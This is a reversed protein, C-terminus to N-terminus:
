VRLGCRPCFKANAPVRRQCHPCPQVGGLRAACRQCYIEGTPNPQQCNRCVMVAPAAPATNSLSISLQKMLRQLRDSIPLPASPPPAVPKAAANPQTAGSPPPITAAAQARAVVDLAECEPCRPLHKSYLHLGRKCTVLAKEATSLAAEWEEPTPRASPRTHGDVFCRRVLAVLDPHLTDLAPANRPPALPMGPKRTYPWQGDRIRDEVPPPDGAGLWQARFPHNGEMLLQFILVALGFRDHEPQRPVESFTRGQLEPPTYEAKGVPCPHLVPKAGVRRRVQFSDTDILTVLASPTVMVNSENLDGVVYDSEHLAGLAAALNRATRHLYRRNFSPLTKARQRPNFVLLLPVANAVYAM